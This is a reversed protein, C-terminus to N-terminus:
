IKNLKPMPARGQFHRPVHRIFPTRVLSACYCHARVDKVTCRCSLTWVSLWIAVTTLQKWRTPDRWCPTALQSTNLQEVSVWLGVMHLHHHGDPWLSDLRCAAIWRMRRERESMGVADYKNASDQAISFFDLVQWKRINKLMKRKRPALQATWLVVTISWRNSLEGPSM